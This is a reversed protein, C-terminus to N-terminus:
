GNLGIGYLHCAKGNQERSRTQRVRINGRRYLQRFCTERNLLVMGEEEALARYAEYLDSKPLETGPEALLEHGSVPGSRRRRGHCLNVANAPM